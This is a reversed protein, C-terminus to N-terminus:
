GFIRLLRGYSITAGFISSVALDKPKEQLTAFLFDSMLSLSFDYFRAVRLWVTGEIGLAAKTLAQNSPLPFLYSGTIVSSLELPGILRWKSSFNFGPGFDLADHASSQTFDTVMVGGLDFKFGLNPMNFNLGLLSELKSNRPLMKLKKWDAETNNSLFVLPALKTEYTNNFVPSIVVSKDKFFSREWPLRFNLDFTVKDRTPKKDFGEVMLFRIGNSLTTILGPADYILSLKTFILLHTFIDAASRSMPLRVPGDKYSVYTDNAVNQSYGFDLYDINFLLAHRRMGQPNELYEFIEEKTLSSLSSSIISSFTQQTRAAKMANEISDTIDAVSVTKEANLFFLNELRGYISEIFPARVSKEDVLGGVLSIGFVELLANESLALQFSEEDNLPRERISRAKKDMGFWIFQNPKKDTLFKAIKKLHSGKVDIVSLVGPRTLRALAIDTGISGLIPTSVFDNEFIVVDAETKNLILGASVSNFEDQKWTRGLDPLVKNDNSEIQSQSLELARPSHDSIAHRVIEVQDLIGGQARRLFVECASLSSLQIIPAVHELADEASRLDIVERRPLQAHSDRSVFLVLDVYVSRAAKAASQESFVRVINFSKNPDKELKVMAKLGDELRVPKGLAGFLSWVQEDDALAWFNLNNHGQTQKHMHDSFPYVLELAGFSATDKLLAGLESSGPLLLAKRKIAANILAPDLNADEGNNAGADLFLANPSKKLLEDVAGIKQEASGVARAAVFARGQESKIVVGPVHSLQNETKPWTIAQPGLFHFAYINKSGVKRRAVKVTSHAAGLYRELQTERVGDKMFGVYSHGMFIEQEILEQEGQADIIDKKSIEDEGFFLANNNRFIPKHANEIIFTSHAEGRFIRSDYFAAYPNKTEFLGATFLLRPNDEAVLACNFGMMVCALLFNNIIYKFLSCWGKPEVINKSKNQLVFM